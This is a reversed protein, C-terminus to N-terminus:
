DDFPVPKLECRRAILSLGQSRDTPPSDPKAPM